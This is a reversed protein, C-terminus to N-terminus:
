DFFKDQIIGKDSDIKATFLLNANTQFSEDGLLGPFFILLFLLHLCDQLDFMLSPSQPM